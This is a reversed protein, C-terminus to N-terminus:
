YAPMELFVLLGTQFAVIALGVPKALRPSKQWLLSFGALAVLTGAAKLRLFLSPDAHNYEILYLGVPNLESELIMDGVAVVLYGDYLSVAGVYLIVSVCTLLRRDPNSMLAPLACTEGNPGIATM